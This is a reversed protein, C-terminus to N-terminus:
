LKFVSVNPVFFITLVFIIKQKVRKDCVKPLLHRKTENFFITKVFEYMHQLLVAQILAKCRQAM